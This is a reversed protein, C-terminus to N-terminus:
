AESDIINGGLEAIRKDILELTRDQTQYAIDPLTSGWINEADNFGKIIGERGEKLKELDDGAGSIVFQAVRDSTNTVGFFGNESVLDTAEEQTLESLEKGQYGISETDIGKLISDIKNYDFQESKEGGGFLSSLFGGAEGLISQILSQNESFGASQAQFQLSLTQAEVQFSQEKGAGTKYSGELTTKQYSLNASVGQYAGIEM